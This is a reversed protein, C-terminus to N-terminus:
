APEDPSISSKEYLASDIWPLGSPRITSLVMNVASRPSPMSFSVLSIESGEPAAEDRRSPAGSKKTQDLLKNNSSLGTFTRPRRYPTASPPAGQDTLVRSLRSVVAAFM